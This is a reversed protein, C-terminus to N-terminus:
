NTPRTTHLFGLLLSNVREPAENHIWHGADPFRVVRIGPVWRDLDETMGVGLYPDSEGWILLTPAAIPRAAAHLDGPHRVLARYWNIAATLAGPRALAAKYLAIDHPTFTGPRVPERRFMRDLLAFNGAALWREPLYPLQFFAIYWSRLWQAPNSLERRFAAPYPANLIVLREVLEPRDMALKWALAGGWDHGVVVARGEAEQEILAAVDGVLLSLRYAAVGAPKDSLNYGRLDPAIARFGAGALAEMQRAWSYWFVPFGHLLVVAPGAGAEAVHLSVGNVRVTRHTIAATPNM